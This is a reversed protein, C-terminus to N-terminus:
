KRCYKRCGKLKLIGSGWFAEGRGEEVCCYEIKGV